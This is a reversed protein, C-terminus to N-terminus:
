VVLKPFSGRVDFRRKCVKVNSLCALVLNLLSGRHHFRTSVKVTNLLPQVLNLFSGRDHFRRTSVKVTSGTRAEYSKWPPSFQTKLGKGCKFLGARTESSKWTPSFSM